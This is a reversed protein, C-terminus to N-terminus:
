GNIGLLKNIRNKDFGIIMEGNIDTQPVGQQGSKSVMAQAATQDQSVDIDTYRIHNKRLHTKLTTCWSCTPTSYVTVRKQVQKNNEMEASYLSEEILNTYFDTSNCGKVVNKYKGNEFYLLSPASKIDYQSHVGKTKTVDVALVNIQKIVKITESLNNFACDSQNSGKKYILCFARPSGKIAELLEDHSDIHQLEMQLLIRTRM